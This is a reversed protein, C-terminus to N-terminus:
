IGQLRLTMPSPGRSVRRLLWIWFLLLGLTQSGSLFPGIFASGYFHNLRMTFFFAGVFLLATWVRSDPEVWTEHLAWGLAPLTFLWYHEWVLPSALLIGSMLLGARPVFDTAEIRFTSRLLVFGTVGAVLVFVAIKVTNTLPTPAFPLEEIGHGLVLRSFWGLLSQNGAYPWVAGSMDSLASWWRRHIDMGLTAVSLAFIGFFVVAGAIATKIRGTIAPHILLGIPFMKVSGVFGLAAGAWTSNGRRIGLLGAWSLAALGPGIQGCNMAMGMPYCILVLGFAWLFTRLSVRVACALLIQWAFVFLLGVNLVFVANRWWITPVTSVPILLASLYPPYYHPNYDEPVGLAIRVPERHALWEDFTAKTCYIWQSEGQKWEYAAYQIHFLDCMRLPFTSRTWSVIGVVFLLLLAWDPPLRRRSTPRANNM